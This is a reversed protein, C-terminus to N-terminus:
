GGGDFAYQRRIWTIWLLLALLVVAAGTFIMGLVTIHFVTFSLVALVATIALLGGAMYFVPNSMWNGYDEGHRGLHINEQKIRKEVM